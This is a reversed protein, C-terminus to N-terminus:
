ITLSNLENVVPTWTRDPEFATLYTVYNGLFSSFFLLGQVIPHKRNM